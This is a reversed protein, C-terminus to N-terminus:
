FLTGHLSLNGKQTMQPSIAEDQLAFQSQLLHETNLQLTHKVRVPTQPQIQRNKHHFQEFLHSNLQM